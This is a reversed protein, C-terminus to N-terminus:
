NRLVAQLTNAELQVTAITHQLLSTMRAPFFSVEINNARFREMLDKRKHVPCCDRGCAFLFIILDEFEMSATTRQYNISNAETEMRLRLLTRPSTPEFYKPDM